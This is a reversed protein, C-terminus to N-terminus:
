GAPSGLPKGSVMRLGPAADSAFFRVRMVFIGVSRKRVNTRTTSCRLKVRAALAWPIVWGAILACILRRCDSSPMSSNSLLAGPTASVGIPWCTM